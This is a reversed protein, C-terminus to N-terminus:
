PVAAHDALRHLEDRGFGARLLCSEMHEYVGLPVGCRARARDPPPQMHAPYGDCGTRFRCGSCTRASLEESRALSDAYPRGGLIEEIGQEALNGLAAAPTGVENVLFLDGNPRVVLVSEGDARRDYHEVSEGAVSRVVAEFWEDLPAVSIRRPADIWHDFLRCLADVLGDDGIEFASSDREDPGAFLPLFRVDVGHAAWRDYIDCIAASTHQAVVSIVGFRIGRERLRAMNELVRAETPRGSAFLRVGPVVDMSVGIGVEYEAILDLVADSLVTLNTQASTKWRDAPVGHADRVRRQTALLSALYDTPLAFPEGGHWIM